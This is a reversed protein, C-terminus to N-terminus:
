DRFMSYADTYVCDSVVAKINEPLDEEESMMLAAAAGMSQGQLVIRTDSDKSLIYQVWIMGDFHYTWGMGIFDGESEGQCRLDPGANLKKVM